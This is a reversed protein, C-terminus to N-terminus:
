KVQVKGSRIEQRNEEKSQFFQWGLAFDSQYHLSRLTSVACNALFQPYDPRAGQLRPRNM